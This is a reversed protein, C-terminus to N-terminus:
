TPNTGIRQADDPGVEDAADLALHEDIRTVDVCEAAPEVLADVQYPLRDRAGVGHIARVTALAVEDGTTGLVARPVAAGAALPVVNARRDEAQARGRESRPVAARPLPAICQEDNGRAVRGPRGVVAVLHVREQFEDVFLAGALVVRENGVDERAVAGVAVFLNAGTKRPVRRLARLTGNGESM